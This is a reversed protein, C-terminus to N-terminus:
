AAQRGDTSRRRAGHLRSMTLAAAAVSPCICYPQSCWYPIPGWRVRRRSRVAQVLGIYVGDRAVVYLDPEVKAWALGRRQALRALAKERLVRSEAEALVELASEVVVAAPDAGGRWWRRM